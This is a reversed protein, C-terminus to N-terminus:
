IFVHKKKLFDIFKMKLDKKHFKKIILYDM